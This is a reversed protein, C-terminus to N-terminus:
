HIFSNIGDRSATGINEPIKKMASSYLSLPIDKLVAKKKRILADVSKPQYNDGYIKRKLNAWFEEIPGLSHCM